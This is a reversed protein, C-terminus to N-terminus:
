LGPSLVADAADSGAVLAGVDRLVALYAITVVNM